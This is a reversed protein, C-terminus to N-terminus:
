TNKIGLKPVKAQIVNTESSTSVPNGRVLSVLMGLLAALAAVLYADRMAWGFSQSYVAQPNHNSLQLQASYAALRNSFVAGSVAVGLVQGINRMTALMGSGVGTQNKPISSMIANNNPSLFLGTGLGVLGLGSIIPILTTTQPTLSLILVGTATLGMGASTLTRSGIQDSLRGSIPSTLLMALPFSTMVLGAKSPPMQLFNDLYFPMLFVVAYQTLYNLIAAINAMTFLRNRFIELSIVPSDVRSEIFIFLGILGVAAILLGIVLPSQWGWSEGHSLALLLTTLAASVTVAGLIDFKQPKGKGKPLVRWAWLTGAIGIPINVSFIAQWGFHGVLFGGIAPGAALGLSVSMAQIGIARGRESSDFNDAIIAQIVAMLMGAGLAQLARSAILISITPALCNLASALTFITFGSIYIPKHGYMDGLRGYTLLLSSILLLYILVVWEANALSTHFYGTIKPMAINVISADLTAMFAGLCTTSLILWKQRNTAIITKGM